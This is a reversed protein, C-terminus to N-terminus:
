DRPITFFLMDDRSGNNYKFRNYYLICGMFIHLYSLKKVFQFNCVRQISVYKVFIIFDTNNKGFINLTLYSNFM